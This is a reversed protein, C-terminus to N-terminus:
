ETSLEQSKLYLNGAQISLSPTDFFTNLAYVRSSAWSQEKTLFMSPGQHHHLPSEPLVLPLHYWPLSAKLPSIPYFQIENM